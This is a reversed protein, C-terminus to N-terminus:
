VEPLLHTTIYSAVEASSIMEGLKTRLIKYEELIHIRSEDNFHINQLEKLLNETLCDDQILEKVVEKGAIINVLSIHKLFTRDVVKRAIWFSLKGAKYVVTQPCNLMATELTATGSTVIASHAHYVIDYTNDYIIKVNEPYSFDDLFHKSKSMGAIVFTEDPMEAALPLLCPVVKKIEQKRSGPLLAIYKGPLRHRTLFTNDAQFEQMREVLPNGVYEVELGHAAFFDKEFPFIVFVKDTYAKLKRIRGKKWAWVKPAIYFYVKIGQEKAYKAIRLNFGAYDILIVADPKFDKINQKCVSLNRLIEPLKAVVEAFGMIALEDIHKEIRAGAKKMKEGGWARIQADKDKKRIAEILKGGHMDGSVEGAIFYYKAM